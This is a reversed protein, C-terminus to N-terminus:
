TRQDGEEQCGEAQDRLGLCTGMSLHCSHPASVCTIHCMYHTLTILIMSQDSKPPCVCRHQPSEQSKTPPARGPLVLSGQSAPSPVSRAGKDRRGQATYLCVRTRNDAQHYCGTLSAFADVPDLIHSTTIGRGRVRSVWTQDGVSCLPVPVPCM